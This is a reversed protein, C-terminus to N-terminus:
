DTFVVGVAVRGKDTTDDVRVVYGKLQIRQEGNTGPANV